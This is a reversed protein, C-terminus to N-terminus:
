AESKAAKKGGALKLETQNPNLIRKRQEMRLLKIDDRCRKAQAQARTMEDELAIIRVETAKVSEASM